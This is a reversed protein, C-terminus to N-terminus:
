TEKKTTGRTQRNGRLRSNTTMRTMKLRSSWSKEIRGRIQTRMMMKMGETVEELEAQIAGEAVEEEVEELDGIAINVRKRKLNKNKLYIM